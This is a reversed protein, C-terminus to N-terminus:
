LIFFKLASLNGRICALIMILISSIYIIDRLNFRKFKDIYINSKELVNLMIPIILVSSLLTLRHFTNYEFIMIILIFVILKCIAYMNNIGNRKNEIKLYKFYLSLVMIIISIQAIGIIYEWIYSYSDGRTYYEIVQMMSNIYRNGFSFIMLILSVMIFINIIIKYKSNTEELLLYIVRIITIFLAVPHILSAIIYWILNRFIPKQEILENYICNAIISFALMTRIGSIVEIFIGSSMIFLFTLAINISKIEYKLASKILINFINRYFIFSTIMPLLGDFKLKGIFYFYLVTVPTTSQKTFELIDNLNMMAYMNKIEILRYLDASEAPVYFYAMISLMITVFFLLKSISKKNSKSIFYTIIFTLFFYIIVGILREFFYM